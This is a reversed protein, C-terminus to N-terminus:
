SVVAGNVESEIKVSVRVKVSGTNVSMDYGSIGKTVSEGSMGGVTIEDVVLVTVHPYRTCGTCDLRRGWKGGYGVGPAETDGLFESLVGLSETSWKTEVGSKSGSTAGSVTLSGTVSVGVRCHWGDGGANFVDLVSHITVRGVLFLVGGDTETDKDVM